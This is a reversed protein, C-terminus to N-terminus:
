QWVVALKCMRIQLLDVLRERLSQLEEVVVGVVRYREAAVRFQADAYEIEGVQLRQVLYPFQHSRLHAQHAVDRRQFHQDPTRGLYDPLAHRFATPRM